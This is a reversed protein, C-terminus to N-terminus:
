IWYNNTLLLDQSLYKKAKNKQDFIKKLKKNQNKTVFLKKFEILNNLLKLHQILQYKIQM